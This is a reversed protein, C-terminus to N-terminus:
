RLTITPRPSRQEMQVQVESTARGTRWQDLSPAEMSLQKPKLEQFLSQFIPAQKAQELAEPARQPSMLMETALQPDRLVSGPRSEFQAAFAYAMGESREMWYANHKAAKERWVQWIPTVEFLQDSHAKWTQQLAADKTSRFWQLNESMPYQDPHTLAENAVVFDLLHFWEHAVAGQRTVMQIRGALDRGTIGGAEPMLTPRSLTLELRGSLGLVQGEWGTVHQLEKNAAQLYQARELLQRPSEWDSLPLTLSRLGTESVAKGLEARAQEWTVTTTDFRRGERFDELLYQVEDSWQTQQEETLSGATGHKLRELQEPYIASIDEQAKSAEQLAKLMFARPQSGIVPLAEDLLQMLEAASGTDLGAHKWQQLMREASFGQHSDLGPALLTQIVGDAEPAMQEARAELSYHSQPLHIDAYFDAERELFADKWSAEEEASLEVTNGTRLNHAVDPFRRELLANAERANQELQSELFADQRGMLTPMLNVVLGRVEEFDASALGADRWSMIMNPVSLGGDDTRGAEVFASTPMDVWRLQQVPTTVPAASDWRAMAEKYVGTDMHGAALAGLGIFVGSRLVNKAAKAFSGVTMRRRQTPSKAGVLLTSEANDLIASVPSPAPTSM